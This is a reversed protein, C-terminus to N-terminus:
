TLAVDSAASDSPSPRWIPVIAGPKSASRTAVSPLGSSSMVATRRTRNTMFAPRTASNFVAARQHWGRARFKEDLMETEPRMGLAAEIGLRVPRDLRNPGGRALDRARRRRRDVEQNRGLLR